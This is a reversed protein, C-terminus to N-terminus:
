SEPVNQYVGIGEFLLMRLLGNIDMSSIQRDRCESTGPRSALM